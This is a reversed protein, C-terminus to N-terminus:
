KGSPVVAVKRGEYTFTVNRQTLAFPGIRGTAANAVIDISGDRQRVMRERAVAIAVGNRLDLLVPGPLAASLILYAPLEGLYYMNAEVPAGNVTLSYDKTPTFGRMAPSIAQQAMAPLAFLMAALSTSLARWM